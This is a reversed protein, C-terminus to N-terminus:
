YETVSAEEAYESGIAILRKILVCDLHYLGTLVGSICAPVAHFCTTPFGNFLSHIHQLLM